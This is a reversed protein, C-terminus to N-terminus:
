IAIRGCSFAVGALFHDFVRTALFHDVVAGDGAAAAGPSRCGTRQLDGRIPSGTLVDAHGAIRSLLAALVGAV